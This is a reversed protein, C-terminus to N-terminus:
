PNCVPCAGPDAETLGDRRPRVDNYGCATCGHIERAVLGTPGGCWACPLGTETRLMGWGPAGCGPCARALRAALREALQGLIDMRRPNMHARMDTQVFARGCSSDRAARAIAEALAGAERLGKAVPRQRAAAPAVILGTRPFDVRSLFDAIGDLDATEAHDYCPRDDVLKEVIEQGSEANRWLLLELGSALFPITPHPGYAGESALGVPLGTSEIAAQAKARAADIMDGARAIEGTFTGFRDTDLGEPVVLRVGLRALPPAIAAEKGHMTGLAARRPLM